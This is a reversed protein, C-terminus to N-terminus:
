SIVSVSIAGVAGRCGSNRIVRLWRKGGGVGINGGGVVECYGALVFLFFGGGKVSLGLFVLWVEVMAVAMAVSRVRSLPSSVTTVLCLQYHSTVLYWETRIFSYKITSIAWEYALSSGKLVLEPMAWQFGFEDISVPSTVLVKINSPPSQGSPFAM